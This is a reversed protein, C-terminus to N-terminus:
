GALRLTPNSSGVDFDFDIAQQYAERVGRKDGQRARLRRLNVAATATIRPHRSNVARQYADKAEALCGEQMACSWTVPRPDRPRSQTSQHGM